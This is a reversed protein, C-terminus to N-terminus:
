MCDNNKGGDYIDIIHLLNSMDYVLYDELEKLFEKLAFVRDDHAEDETKIYRRLLNSWDEYMAEREKNTM